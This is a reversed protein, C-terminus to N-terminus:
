SEEGLGGLMDLFEKPMKMIRARGLAKALAQHADCESEVALYGKRVGVHKPGFLKYDERLSNYLMEGAINNKGQARYLSYEMKAKEDESAVYKLDVMLRDCERAYMATLAYVKKCYLSIEGKVVEGDKVEVPVPFMEPDMGDIEELLEKIFDSRDKNAELGM